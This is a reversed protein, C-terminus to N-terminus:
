ARMVGPASGPARRRERNAAIGVMGAIIFAVSFLKMSALAEMRFPAMALRLTGYAILFSFFIEGEFARRRFRWVLYTTVALM